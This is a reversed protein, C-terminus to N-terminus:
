LEIPDLLIEFDMKPAQIHLREVNRTIVKRVRVFAFENGIELWDSGELAAVDEEIEGM